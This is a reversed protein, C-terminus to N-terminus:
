LCIGHVYITVKHMLCQNSSLNYSCLQTGRLQMPVDVLQVSHFPTVIFSIRSLVSDGGVGGGNDSGRLQSYDMIIYLNFLYLLQFISSIERM